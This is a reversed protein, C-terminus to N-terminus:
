VMYLVLFAFSICRSQADGFVCGTSARFVANDKVDETSSLDLRAASTDAPTPSCDRPQAAPFLCECCWGSQACLTVLERGPKQRRPQDHQNKFTMLWGTQQRQRGEPRHNGSGRERGPEEMRGAPPPTDTEQTPTVAAAAWFKRAWVKEQVQVRLGRDGPLSQPPPPAPPTDRDSKLHFIM